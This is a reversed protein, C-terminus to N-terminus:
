WNVLVTTCNPFFMWSPLFGKIYDLLNGLTIPLSENDCQSKVDFRFKSWPDNLCRCLALPFAKPEL